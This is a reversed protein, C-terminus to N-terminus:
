SCVCGTDHLEDAPDCGCWSCYKGGHDDLHGHLSLKRILSREAESSDTASEGLASQYWSQIEVVEETTLSVLMLSMFM